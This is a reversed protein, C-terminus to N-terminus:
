CIDTLLEDWGLTLTPGNGNQTFVTILRAELQIRCGVPIGEYAPHVEAFKSMAAASLREMCSMCVVHVTPGTAPQETNTFNYGM